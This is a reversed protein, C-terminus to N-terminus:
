VFFSILDKRKTEKVTISRGAVVFISMGISKDKSTLSSEPSESEVFKSSEIGEISPMGGFVKQQFPSVEYPKNEKKHM